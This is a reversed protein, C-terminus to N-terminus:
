IPLSIAAMHATKCPSTSAMIRVPPIECLGITTSYIFFNDVGRKEADCLTAAILPSTTEFGTAFFVVQRRREDMALKLADMPSYFVRVDAGGARADGLCEVGGPVRMMDGFTGLVVGSLKSLAIASDVDRISTVCVPCGPGSLLSIENPIIDRIGHRFIAVTHTGCVEMLKLPRGILATLRNIDVLMAKMETEICPIGTTLM